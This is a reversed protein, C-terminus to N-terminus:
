PSPPPLLGGAEPAGGSRPVGRRLDPVARTVAAAGPSHLCAGVAAPQAQPARAPYAPAPGERREGGPRTQGTRSSRSGSGRDTRTGRAAAGAGGITALVAPAGGGVGGAGGVEGRLGGGGGGWGGEGGRESWRKTWNVWPFLRRASGLLQPLCTLGPWETSREVLGEKVGHALVYRLRGVLAADDLVPEASYRREWFGGSWNAKPSERPLWVVCPSVRM